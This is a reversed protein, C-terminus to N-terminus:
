GLHTSSPRQVQTLHVFPHHPRPTSRPPRLWRHIACVLFLPTLAKHVQHRPAVLFASTLFASPEIWEKEWERMDHGWAANFSERLGGDDGGGGSNQGSTQAAEEKLGASLSIAKAYLKHLEEMALLDYHPTSARSIDRDRLHAPVHSRFGSRPRSSNTLEADFFSQRLALPQGDSLNLGQVAGLRGTSVCLRHHSRYCM